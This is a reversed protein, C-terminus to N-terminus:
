KGKQKFQNIQANKLALQKTQNTIKTKKDELEKKLKVIEQLQKKILEDDKQITTGIDERRYLDVFLKLINWEKEKLTPELKSIKDAIINIERPIWSLNVNLEKSAKQIYKDNVASLNDCLIHSNKYDYKKIYFIAHFIAYKEAESSNTCDHLKLVSTLSKEPDYLSIKFETNNEKGSADVYIIRRKNEPM